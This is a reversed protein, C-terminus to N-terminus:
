QELRGLQLPGLRQPHVQVQLHQLLADIAEDPGQPLQRFLHPRQRNGEEQLSAHLLEFLGQRQQQVQLVLRESFPEPAGSTM